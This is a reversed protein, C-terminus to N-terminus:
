KNEWPNNIRMGILFVVFPGQIKATMREKNLM